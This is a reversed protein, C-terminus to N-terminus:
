APRPGRIRRRWGLLSLASGMQAMDAKGGFASVHLATASTRKPGVASEHLAAFLIAIRDGRRRPRATLVTHPQDLLVAQDGFVSGPASVKAIQVGDKIVEVAGSKLFLLRGTKSGATLLVEHAPHKVVPLGALRMEFAAVSSNAFAHEAGEKPVQVFEKIGLNCSRTPGLDLQRTRRAARIEATFLGFLLSKFGGVQPSYNHMM